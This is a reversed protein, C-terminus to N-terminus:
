IFQYDTCSVHRQSRSLIYNGPTGAVAAPLGRNRHVVGKDDSRLKRTVLKTVIDTGHHKTVITVMTVMTVMTVLTVVTVM